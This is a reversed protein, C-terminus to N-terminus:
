LDLVVQLSGPDLPLSMRFGFKKLLTQMALNDHLIEAVLRSLNRERAIQVLRSLLASGLGKAQYQDSIIVAVEAEKGGPLKNLRGVGLIRQDGTQPDKYDVVLVLENDYDCACIHALRDHAVRRRLSLPYFYRLYVTRDSLTEHFKVMSPEDERRIPRITVQTGDKMTFSSIYQAPYPFADSSPVPSAQPTPDSLTM